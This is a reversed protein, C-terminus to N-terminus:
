EKIGKKILKERIRNKARKIVSSVAETELGVLLGIERHSMEELIFFEVCARERPKLSDLVETVVKRRDESELTELPTLSDDSIALESVDDLRDVRHTARSSAKVRDLVTHTSLVVLYKKLGESDRLGLLSKKEFIKRFVEQFLDDVWDQQAQFSSDKLVQQISWYILKSFRRVFEDWAGVRDELCARLLEQDSLGSRLM